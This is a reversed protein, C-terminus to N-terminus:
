SEFWMGVQSYVGLELISQQERDICHQPNKVPQMESFVKNVKVSVFEKFHNKGLHRYLEM